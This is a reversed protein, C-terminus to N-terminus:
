IRMVALKWYEWDSKVPKEMISDLGGFRRNLPNFVNVILSRVPM